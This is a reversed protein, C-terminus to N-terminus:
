LCRSMIQDLRNVAWIFLLAPLAATIVIVIIPLLVIAFILGMSIATIDLFKNM